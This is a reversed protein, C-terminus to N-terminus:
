IRKDRSNAFKILWYITAIILAIILLYLIWGSIMGTGGYAEDIMEGHSEGMHAAVLSIDFLFAVLIVMLLNKQRM